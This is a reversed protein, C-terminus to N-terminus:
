QRGFLSDLFLKLEHAKCYKGSSPFGCIECKDSKKSQIKEELKFEDFIKILRENFRIINYLTGPSKMEQDLLFFRIDWRAGERAYPCPIDVYEIGKLHAYLTIEKEPIERFPKVRPVINEAKVPYPKLRLLNILSGKLVNMIITQAEDDLCHATAIKDANAKLALYNLGWRRWVGCFTCAGFRRKERPIRVIEDISYGFLEKYNAEYYELGLEKAKKRVLQTSVDSYGKIGEDLHIVILESPFNKEIKYLVHLLTMSDKGGSVAVAIRDTPEFMNWKSITKMVKKEFYKIFEDITFCRNAEKKCYIIDSKKM